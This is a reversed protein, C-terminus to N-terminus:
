GLANDTHNKEKILTLKYLLLKYTSIVIPNAAPIKFFAQQLPRLLFLVFLFFRQTTITIDKFVVARMSM